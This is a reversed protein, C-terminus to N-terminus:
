PKAVVDGVLNAAKLRDRATEAEKRTAYPGARVRHKDGSPTKLVDSYNRIGLSTLKAKLQKANEPMAFAGLRVVFGSQPPTGNPKAPSKADKAPDAKAVPKAPETPKAAAKSAEASKTEGSTASEKPHAPQVAQKPPEAAAQAKPTDSKPKVSEPKPQAPKLEVVATPKAPQGSPAAPPAQLTAAPLQPKADPREATVAETGNEPPPAPKPPVATEVPAPRPALNAPGKSDQSPINIAIDDSVPRPEDDLVMPLFVVLATVLIVAGLLRRKARRRLQNHEDSQSSNAM